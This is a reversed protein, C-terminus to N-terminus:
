WGTLLGRSLKSFPRKNAVEKFFEEGKISQGAM